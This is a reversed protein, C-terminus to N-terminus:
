INVAKIKPNTNNLSFVLDRDVLVVPDEKFWDPLIEPNECDADRYDELHRCNPGYEEDVLRDKIYYGAEQFAKQFNFISQWESVLLPRSLYKQVEVAGTVQGKSDRVMDEELNKLVLYSDPCISDEFSWKKNSCKIVYDGIRFTRTCSGRGVDSIVKAGTSLQLYKDVYELFKDGLGNKFIDAIMEDDIETFPKIQREFEEYIDKNLYRGYKNFLVYKYNKSTRFLTDIDNILYERNLPNVSAVLKGYRDLEAALTNSSYRQLIFERIKLYLEEDKLHLLVLSAIKSVYNEEIIEIEKGNNDYKVFYETVDDYIFNFMNPFADLLEIIFLSRIKMNWHNKLTNVLKFNGTREAHRIIAFLSEKNGLVIASLKENVFNVAWDGSLLFLLLFKYDLLINHDDRFYRLWYEKYEPMDFTIKFAYVPYMKAIEKFSNFLINNKYPSIRIEHVLYELQETSFREMFDIDGAILYEVIRDSLM